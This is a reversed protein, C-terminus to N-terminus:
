ALGSLKKLRSPHVIGKDCLKKLKKEATSNPSDGRSTGIKNAQRNGQSGEGQDQWSRIKAPLGIFGTM